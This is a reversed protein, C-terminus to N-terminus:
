QKAEKDGWWRYRFGRFPKAEIDGELDLWTNSNWVITEEEGPNFEEIKFSGEVHGNVAFYVRSIGPEINGRPNRSINWYFDGPGENEALGKKHKLCDPNTYIVLDDYGLIESATAGIRIMGPM